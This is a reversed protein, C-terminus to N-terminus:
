STSILIVQPPLLGNAPSNSHWAPRAAAPNTSRRELIPHEAAPVATPHVPSSSGDPDGSSLIVIVLELAYYLGQNRKLRSRILSQNVSIEFFNYPM